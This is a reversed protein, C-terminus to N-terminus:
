PALMRQLVFQIIWLALPLVLATVLWRVTEPQWPWTPIRKLTNQQIELSAIAKYLDDMRELNGSDMRQQLEVISAELRLSGEDLLREKEEVLLRHVGLLPWVFSALGLAIFPLTIGIATPDSLTGPNIAMWAYPIVTLSVATLATVSSFAYLPRMRFLNIRTHRTFIRNIVRLQHITHYILTGFIWWLLRYIFYLLACSIPSTALADFSSPLSRWIVHEMVIFSILIALSALLTPRAPLTTVQYRLRRYEEESAKLAPRLTTLAADAREDLYHFLALFFAIVGAQFGQIPLFTGIPFAGEIWLVIAQVLLLVLGIGLYYSWSSGPLREVWATFRDAWSPAYPQPRSESKSNAKDDTAVKPM